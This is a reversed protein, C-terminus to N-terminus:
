DIYLATIVCSLGFDVLLGCGIWALLYLIKPSFVTWIFLHFRLSYCSLILTLGSVSYFTATLVLKQYLRNWNNGDSRLTLVLFAASWFIPGAWNCVFTLLGSLLMNYSTLGNFSNTLDVSSLSNTFGFQFFSLNQMLITFVAVTNTSTRAELRGFTLLILLLVLFLPVNAYNTQAMLLFAVSVFVARTYNLPPDALRLQRFLAPKLLHGVTTGLWVKYFLAFLQQNLTNIDTSHLQSEIWQTYALCWGPVSATDTALDFTVSLYSLFKATFVVSAQVSFPVFTVFRLITGDGNVRIPAGNAAYFCFTGLTAVLLVAVVVPGIQPPLAAIYTAIKLNSKLNNKQGSNNWAKLLRLAALLVFSAQARRGPRVVVAALFVTTFFWWLHHEEEIMSSGFFNAAYAVFFVLDGTAVALQSWYLRVFLALVVAATAAYGLIGCAIDNYNYDSSTRSLEDKTAALLSQLEHLSRVDVDTELPRVRNQSKDRLVKLQLANKVLVDLQQQASYLPLLEHMFTGLNNVPIELGLLTCLTPVLDIQDVRSYYDFEGNWPIPARVDTRPLKQFKSSVLLMGASVEGVSSGGHNGVENMGHDGMVVFLTNDNERVTQEYVRRIIADMERQKGPMNASLPGGKHGIHDLGLYHLILCDWAAQGASSLEFDLHRTVNNDVITFDSVYFSATGDTKAFYSPFLKLWTDDGFMNIKWGATHMQRIWSDQDGLTSSTDEEAINLVADIFNPTSGTTIGKLRPLTVTPPNSYATYGIASGTNLLEHVFPM